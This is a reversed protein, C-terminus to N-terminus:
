RSRGAPDPRAPAPRPKRTIPLREIRVAPNNIRAAMQATLATLGEDPLTRIDIVAEAMSPIVNPGIGAQLMTAVLSTRLASYHVPEHEALYRQAAAPRQPDLLSKYRLARRWDVPITM